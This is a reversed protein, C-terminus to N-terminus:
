AHDEEIPLVVHLTRIVDKALRRKEDFSTWSGSGPELQSVRDDICAKVYADLARIFADLHADTM